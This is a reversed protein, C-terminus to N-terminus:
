EFKVIQLRLNSEFVVLYTYKLFIYTLVQGTFLPGWRTILTIQVNTKGANANVAPEDMGGWNLCGDCGTNGDDMYPICDHFVLRLIKNENIDKKDLGMDDLKMWVPYIMQLIRLRTSDIESSSWHGGPTGPKLTISDSPIFKFTNVISFHKYLSKYGQRDSHKLM